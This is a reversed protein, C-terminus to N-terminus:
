RIVRRNADRVFDDISGPLHLSASVLCRIYIFQFLLVGEISHSIPFIITHVALGTAFHRRFDAAIEPDEIQPFSGPREFYDGEFAAHVDQITVCLDRSNIGLVIARGMVNGPDSIIYHFVNIWTPQRVLNKYNVSGQPAAELELSLIRAIDDSRTLEGLAAIEKLARLFRAPTMESTQTSSQAFAFLSFAVNVNVLIIGVIAVCFSQQLTLAASTIIVKIKKEFKEIVKYTM